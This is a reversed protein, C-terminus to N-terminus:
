FLDVENSSLKHVFSQMGNLANFEIIKSLKLFGGGCDVYLVNGGGGIHKEWGKVTWDQDM